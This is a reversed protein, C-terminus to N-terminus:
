EVKAMEEYIRLEITYFLNEYQREELLRRM